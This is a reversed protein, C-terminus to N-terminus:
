GRSRARNGNGASGASPRPSAPRGPADDDTVLRHPLPTSFNPWPNAFSIRRRRGRASSLHRRSSTTMWQSHRARRRGARCRARRSAFAALRNSRLSRFRCPRAGRTVIASLEGAIGRCLLFEQWGACAALYGRRFSAGAWWAVLAGSSATLDELCAFRNKAACSGIEEMEAAIVDGSVPVSSGAGSGEVDPGCGGASDHGGSRRKSRGVYNREGVVM